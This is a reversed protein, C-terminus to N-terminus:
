VAPRHDLGAAVADLQRLTQGGARILHQDGRGVAALHGLDLLDGAIQPGIGGFADRLFVVQLGLQLDIHLLGSPGQLLIEIQVLSDLHNKFALRPNVKTSSSTTTAIMPTSTAIRSGATCDARSLARRVCHTLWSLCTPMAM